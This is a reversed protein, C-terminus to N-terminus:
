QKVPHLDLTRRVLGVVSDVRSSTRADTHLRPLSRVSPPLQDEALLGLDARTNVVIWPITPFCRGTRVGAAIGEEVATWQRPIDVSTLPSAVVLLVVDARGLMEEFTRSPSFAAGLACQIRVRRGGVSGTFALLCRELSEDRAEEASELLRHALARALTHRGTIQAGVVCITVLYSM